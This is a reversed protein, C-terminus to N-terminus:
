LIRVMQLECSFLAKIRYSNEQKRIQPNEIQRGAKETKRLDAKTGTRM